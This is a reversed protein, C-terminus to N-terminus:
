LDLPRLDLPQLELSPLDLSPLDLRPYQNTAGSVVGGVGGAGGRQRTVGRRYRKAIGEAVGM